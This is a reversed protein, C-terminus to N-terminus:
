RLGDIVSMFMQIDFPKQLLGDVAAGIEAEIDDIDMGTVICIKAQLCLERVTEIAERGSMDPLTWDVLVIDYGGAELERTVERRCRAVVAEHDHCSLVAQMTASVAEDDDIILVRM